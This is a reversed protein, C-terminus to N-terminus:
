KNFISISIGKWMIIIEEYSLFILIIAFIITLWFYINIKKGVSIIRGFTFESNHEINVNGTDDLINTKPNIEYKSNTKISIKRQQKDSM